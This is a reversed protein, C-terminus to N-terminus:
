TYYKRQGAIQNTLIKFLTGGTTAAVFAFWYNRLPYYTSTVEISFLVGIIVYHSIEKNLLITIFPRVESPVVSTPHSVVLQQQPM